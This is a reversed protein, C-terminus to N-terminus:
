TTALSPILVTEYINIPSFMVGIVGGGVLCYLWRIIVVSSVVGM